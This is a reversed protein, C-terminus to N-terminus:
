RDHKRRDPKSYINKFEADLSKELKESKIFPPKPKMFDTPAMKPVTVPREYRANM